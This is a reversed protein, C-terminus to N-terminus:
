FGIKRKHEGHDIPKLYEKLNDKTFFPQPKGEVLARATKAALTKFCRELNRVGAEDTYTTILEQITEDNLLITKKHDTLGTEDCAKKILHQKAIHIKDPLTYDSLTIIEMRDKLPPAIQQIYNATAVFFVKSVDFTIGLYHDRFSTNQEPDFLELLSAQVGSHPDMKDIEDLTILPNCTGAQKIAQIIRGPGSSKYSPEWGRIVSEDKVGGMAVRAYEKCMSRAISKCLATKGVGPSGVLCWVPLFHKKNMNLKQIALLDLIHEKVREMGYHDKDLISKAASLNFNDDSKVNWPLAFIDNAIATDNKNLLERIKSKIEPSVPLTYLQQVMEQHSLWKKSASWPKIVPSQIQNNPMQPEIRIPTQQNQNRRRNQKPILRQPLAKFPLLM